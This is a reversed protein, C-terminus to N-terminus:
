RLWTTVERAAAAVAGMTIMMWLMIKGLRGWAKWTRWWELVERLAAREQPTLDAERQAAKALAKEIEEVNAVNCRLGWRHRGAKWWRRASLAVPGFM